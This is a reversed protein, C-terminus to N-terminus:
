AETVSGDEAKGKADDEAKGKADDEAKGKADDEAKGDSDDKAKGNYTAIKAAHFKAAEDHKGAALLAQHQDALIQYDIKKAM